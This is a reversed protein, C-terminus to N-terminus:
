TTIIIGVLGVTAYQPNILAITSSEPTIGKQEEWEFLKKTFKESIGGFKFEEGKATKVTIEENLNENTKDMQKRMLTAQYMKKLKEEKASNKLRERELREKERQVKQIEKELWASDREQATKTSVLASKAGSVVFAASNGELLPMKESYKDNRRKVPTKQAKRNVVNQNSNSSSSSKRRLIARTQDRGLTQRAGTGTEKIQEWEKLKRNFDDPMLKQIDEVKKSSHGSMAKIVEWEAM